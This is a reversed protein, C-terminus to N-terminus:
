GAGDDTGDLDVGPAADVLQDQQIDTSGRVRALWIEVQDAIERRFAEHGEGDAAAYACDLVEPEGQRAPGILHRDAGRANLLSGENLLRRLAEPILSDNHRDIYNARLLYRCAGTLANIKASLRNLERSFAFAHSGSFNQEIRDLAIAGHLPVVKSQDGADRGGDGDRDDCAAAGAAVFIEVTRKLDTSM